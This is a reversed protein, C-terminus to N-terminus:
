KGFREKKRNDSKQRQCQVDQPPEFQYGDDDYDPM